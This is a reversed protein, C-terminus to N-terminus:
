RLCHERFRQRLRSLAVGSLGLGFMVLSDPEPVQIAVFIPFSVGSSAFVSAAGSSNYKLITNEGSNVAYLSGSSDFALGYPDNLGSAFVSAVGSSNFKEITGNQGTTGITGVNSFFLNGNSDFALGVPARLGSAFVSGVGSPNFREITGNYYGAGGNSVFLNGSGDFALDLPNSLSAAAFVSGVGSSNFKEITNNGSNAM